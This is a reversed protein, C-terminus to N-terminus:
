ATRLVVAVKSRFGNVVSSLFGHNAWNESSFGIMTHTSAVSGVLPLTIRELNFQLQQIHTSDVMCFLVLMCDFWLSLSKHVGPNNQFLLLKTVTCQVSELQLLFPVAAFSFIWAFLSDFSQNCYKSTIVFWTFCKVFLKSEDIHAIQLSNSEFKILPQICM